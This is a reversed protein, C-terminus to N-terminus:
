GLKALLVIILFIGGLVLLPGWQKLFGQTGIYKGHVTIYWALNVMNWNTKGDYKMNNLALAVHSHCNDCFINHMHSRYEDSAEKVAKDYVEDGGIVKSVDLQWTKTPWGFTMKDDAVYYSGGFDRVVGRSTSIGLHGIVPFFWSILPLPTWVVCYPYRHNKANIELSKESFPTASNEISNEFM